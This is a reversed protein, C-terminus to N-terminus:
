TVHPAATFHGIPSPVEVAKKSSEVKQVDIPVGVGHQRAALLIRDHGNIFSARDGWDALVMVVYTRCLSFFVESDM